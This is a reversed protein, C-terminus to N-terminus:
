SACNPILSLSFSVSSTSPSLFLSLALSVFLSLCVCVFVFFVTLQSFSLSLSLFLSLSVNFFPSTWPDVYGGVRVIEFLRSCDRMNKEGSGNWRAAALVPRKKWRGGEIGRGDAGEGEEAATEGPGGRRTRRGGQRPRHQVARRVPRRPLNHRRRTGRSHRHVRPRLEQPPLSRPLPFPPPVPPLSSPSVPSPPLPPSPSLFSSPPPSSSSFSFLFM